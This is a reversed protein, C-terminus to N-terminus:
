GVVATWGKISLDSLQQMSEVKMEHSEAAEIM